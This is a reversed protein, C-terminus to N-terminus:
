HFIGFVDMMISFTDSLILVADSKLHGVGRGSAKNIPTKYYKHAQKVSQIFVSKHKIVLDVPQEKTWYNLFYVIM